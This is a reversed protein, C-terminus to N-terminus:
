HINLCILFCQKLTINHTVTISVFTFSIVPEIKDCLLSYARLKEGLDLMFTKEYDERADDAELQKARRSWNSSHLMENLSM